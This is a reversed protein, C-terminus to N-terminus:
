VSVPVIANSRDNFLQSYWALAKALTEEAKAAATDATSNPICKNTETINVQIEDAFQIKKRERPKHDNYHYDEESLETRYNHILQERFLRVATRQELPPIVIPVENDSYDEVIDGSMMDEVVLEEEIAANKDNKTSKTFLLDHQHLKPFHEM